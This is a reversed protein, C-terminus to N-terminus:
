TRLFNGRRHLATCRRNHVGVWPANGNDSTGFLVCRQRRWGSPRALVAKRQTYVNVGVAVHKLQMNGVRAAHGLLKEHGVGCAIPGISGHINAEVNAAVKFHTAALM